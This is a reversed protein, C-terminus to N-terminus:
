RDNFEGKSIEIIGNGLNKSKLRIMRGHFILTDDNNLLIKKWEASTIRQKYNEDIWHNENRLEM